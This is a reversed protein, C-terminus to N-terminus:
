SRFLDIPAMKGARVAPLWVGALALATILVPVAAYILVSATGVDVLVSGLLQTALLAAPVGTGIGAAVAISAQRLVLSRVDAPTAGLAIRIGLDRRRDAVWRVVLANVGVLSLLLALGGFLTSLAARFVNEAISSALVESMTTSRSVAVRADSGVLSQRILPLTASADGSARVVFQSFLVLPVYFTPLPRESPDMRVDAVVGVVRLQRGPAQVISFRKDVGSAGIVEREFAESVIAIDGPIESTGFTRGAVIQIGMVRFFEPSVAMRQSLQDATGGELRVFAQRPPVLFPIADSGAVGTVGPVAEIREIVGRLLSTFGQQFRQSAARALDASTSPTLTRRASGERFQRQDERPAADLSLPITTVVALQAPDFGLPQARLRLLTGGLLSASVVLIVALGIQIAVLIQQWKHPRATVARSEALADAGSLASLVLSPATGFIISSSAGLALAFMVVTVDITVTELRPLQDPAMAIFVPTLWAALILGVVSAGLGLFAHEWALQRAIRLRSAGLALRIAVETRRRVANGLLLGSASSCSVLLLLGAASFLLIVARTSDALLERSLSRLELTQREPPGSSQSIQELVDAAPPITVRPKSKAIARFILQDSMRWGTPVMGSPLVFDASQNEVSFGPPLVGIVAYSQQRGGVNDPSLIISQELVSPAGGFRRTWTGHSLIVVNQPDDDEESRFFRGMVPVAGLLSLVDSSAYNVSVAESRDPGLLMRLPTWCGVRDFWPVDRLAVCDSWTLPQGGASSATATRIVSRVAFLRQPDPWPFPKILVANAISFIAITAAIGLALTLVVATPLAPRAVWRLMAARCDDIAERVIV